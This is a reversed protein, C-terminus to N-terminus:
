DILWSYNQLTETQIKLTTCVAVSLPAKLWKLHWDVTNFNWSTSIKKWKHMDSCEYHWRKATDKKLYTFWRHYHWTAMAANLYCTNWSKSPQKKVQRTFRYVSHYMHVDTEKLILSFPHPVRGRGWCSPLVEKSTLCFCFNQECRLCSGQCYMM